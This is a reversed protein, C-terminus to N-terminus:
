KLKMLNGKADILRLFTGSKDDYGAMLRAFEGDTIQLQSGTKKSQLFMLREGRLDDFELTPDGDANDGLFIKSRLNTPHFLDEIL